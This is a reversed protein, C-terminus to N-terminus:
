KSLAARAKQLNAHVTAAREALGAPPPGMPLRCDGVNFGLHKMMVKSPIPNPNDDGTEFAYSELLIDNYKRALAVDGKKFATIMAQHEPASWHTAVGIVGSGGYALFALTLGDDGSYLEFDKPVQAMLNATEAPAGAADKLAKINPVTNALKALTQTSIKRGTRVPIDYIVVPLSTANAMATIHGALGSQPPRNYYPGVALIGAAGMKTVEKTLHVSHATDNSGSGAIVPITVANIVAEWLSLKEADTLTSSEGTTGSIVLGDNGNDQLWKALRVAENLDLAGSADFPTIMATLVQGFIAM